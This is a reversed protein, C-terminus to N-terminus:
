ARAKRYVLLQFINWILLILKFSSSMKICNRIRHFRGRQHDSWEKRGGIRKHFLICVHSAFFHELDIFTPQHLLCKLGTKQFTKSADPAGGKTGRKITAESKEGVSRGWKATKIDTVERWNKQKKKQEDRERERQREWWGHRVWHDWEAWGNMSFGNYFRMKKRNWDMGDVNSNIKRHKERLWHPKKKVRERQGRRCGGQLADGACCSIDHYLHIVCSMESDNTIFNKWRLKGHACLELFM